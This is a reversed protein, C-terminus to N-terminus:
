LTFYYEKINAIRRRNKDFFVAHTKLDDIYYGNKKYVLRYGSYTTNDGEIRYKCPITDYKNVWFGSSEAGTINVPSKLTDTALLWTQAKPEPPMDQASLRFSLLLLLPLLHKM